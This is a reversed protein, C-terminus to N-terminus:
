DIKCLLRFSSSDYRKIGSRRPKRTSDVCDTLGYRVCRECPRPIRLMNKRLCHTPVYRTNSCKKCAKQCHTCAIRVQIRKQRGLSRDEVEMSDSSSSNVQPVAHVPQQDYSSQTAPIQAPYQIEAAFMPGSSIPQATM